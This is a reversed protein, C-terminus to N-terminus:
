QSSELTEVLLLELVGYMSVSKNDGVYMTTCLLLIGTSTTPGCLHRDAMVISQM